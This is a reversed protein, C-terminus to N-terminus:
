DVRRRNHLMALALVDERSWKKARGHHDIWKIPVGTRWICEEMIAYCELLPLGFSEIRPKGLVRMIDQEVEFAAEGIYYERIPAWYLISIKVRNYDKTRENVSHTIGFQFEPMAKLIERYLYFGLYLSTKPKQQISLDMLTLPQLSLDGLYQMGALHCLIKYANFRERAHAFGKKIDDLYLPQVVETFLKRMDLQVQKDFSASLGVDPMVGALNKFGQNYMTLIKGCDLCRTNKPNQPDREHCFMEPPLLRDCFPYITSSTTCRRDM